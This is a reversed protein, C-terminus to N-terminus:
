LASMFIEFSARASARLMARGDHVDDRELRAALTAREGYNADIVLPADM